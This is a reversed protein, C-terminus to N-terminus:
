VTEVKELYAMDLHLPEDRVYKLDIITSILAIAPATNKGSPEAIVNDSEISQVNKIIKEKLDSRTIIYIDKVEKVKKLRDVTMQLMTQDGVINLLQKPQDKRSLPWFRKGSGGALIVCIM